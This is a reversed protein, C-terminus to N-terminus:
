RMVSQKLLESNHESTNAVKVLTEFWSDEIFHESSFHHMTCQNAASALKMASISATLDLCEFIELAKKQKTKFLKDKSLIAANQVNKVDDNSFYLPGHKLFFKGPDKDTMSKVGVSIIYHHPLKPDIKLNFM